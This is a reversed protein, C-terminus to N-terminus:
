WTNNQEDYLDIVKIRRRIAPDETFPFVNCTFVKFIGKPIRANVYRCHISRTLFFDLLHIQSTRPWGRYGSTPDPAFQMDDFIISRHHGERFARLDDAHSVLLAPRPAYRAAWTTKGIGSPGLLVLARSDNEDYRIWQLLPASITGDDTWDDTITVSQTQSAAWAAQAYAFPINSKFSLDLWVRWSSCASARECLTEQSEEEGLISTEGKEQFDGDKLCYRRAAARARRDRKALINPHTGPLDLRDNAVRDAPREWEVYAHFHLGGDAHREKAVIAYQYPLFTGLTTFINEHTTDDPVQSWTLFHARGRLRFTM